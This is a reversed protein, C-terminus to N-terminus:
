HHALDGTEREISDAEGERLAKRYRRISEEDLTEKQLLERAGQELLTRYQQLVARAQELGASVIGRIAGDIRRQMDESVASRSPGMVPAMELLPPALPEVAVPGVSADMGHRVVMERAIDTAKALDDAAGTSVENFALMEAARGGMLVAVRRELESRTSLYRDEGPRQITFGLAGIGHPIISVKHV